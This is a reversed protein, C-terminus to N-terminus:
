VRVEEVSMPFGFDEQATEQESSAVDDAHSGMRPAPCHEYLHEPAATRGHQELAILKCAIIFEIRGLQGLPEIHDAINWVHRLVQPTLSWRTLTTNSETEYYHVISLATGEPHPAFLVM